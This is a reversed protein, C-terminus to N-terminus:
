EVLQQPLGYLTASTQTMIGEQSDNIIDTKKLGSSIPQAISTSCPGLPGQNVVCLHRAAVQLTHVALRIDLRLIM